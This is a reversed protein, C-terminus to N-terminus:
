RENRTAEEWEGADPSVENWRYKVTLSYEGRVYTVIGWDKYLSPNPDFQISQVRAGIHDAAEQTVVILTMRRLDYNSEAEAKVAARAEKHGCILGIMAGVALIAVVLALNAPWTPKM